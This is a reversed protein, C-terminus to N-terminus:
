LISFIGNSDDEDGNKLIVLGIIAKLVSKELLDLDPNKRESFLEEVLPVDYRSKDKAKNVVSKAQPVFEGDEDPVGEYKDACKELAEKERDCIREAEEVLETEISLNKINPVLTDKIENADSQHSGSWTM